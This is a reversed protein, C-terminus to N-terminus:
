DVPLFMALLPLPDTEYDDPEIIGAAICLESLAFSQAEHRDYARAFKELTEEDLEGFEKFTIDREAWVGLSDFKNLEDLIEDADKDGTKERDILKCMITESAEAQGLLDLLESARDADRSNYRRMDELWERVDLPQRAM